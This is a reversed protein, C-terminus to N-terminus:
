MVIFRSVIHKLLVDAFVGLIAITLVGVFVIDTQVFEGAESIMFGLGSSAAVLEAGVLARWSYGFGLRLGTLIGPMAAPLTLNQLTEKRTFGLVKAVEKLKPEVGRLASLTSLYIPFFGSLFVIGIKPGEGIGLWLILLPIISLPPTVRLVEILLYGSAHAKENKSFLFALSFASIAAFVFGVFTRSASALIHHWLMGSIILERASSIVTWPAPLLLSPVWKNVSSVTWLIILAVPLSCYYLFRSMM